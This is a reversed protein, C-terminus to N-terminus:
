ALMLCRRQTGTLLDLCGDPARQTITSEARVEPATREPAAELTVRKSRGRQRDIARYRAINMIWALSRGRQGEIQRNQRWIRVLVVRLCLEALEHTHLMRLLLAMLLPWVRWYLEELPLHGQRACRALLSELEANDPEPHAM